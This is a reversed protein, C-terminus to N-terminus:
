TGAPPGGTWDRGLLLAVAIGLGGRRAVAGQKSLQVDHRRRHTPSPIPFNPRISGGRLKVEPSELPQVCASPEAGIEEWGRRTVLLVRTKNLPPYRPFMPSSNLPSSFKKVPSHSFILWDQDLTNKVWPSVRPQVGARPRTVIEECVGLSIRRPSTRRSPSRASSTSEPTAAGACGYPVGQVGPHLIMPDVPWVISTPMDGNHRSITM